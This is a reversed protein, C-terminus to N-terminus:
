LTTQKNVLPAALATSATRDIHLEYTRWADAATKWNWLKLKVPYEEKQSHTHGRTAEPGGM